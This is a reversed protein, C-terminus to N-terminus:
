LSIMLLHFSLSFSGMPNLTWRCVVEGVESGGQCWGVRECVVLWYEAKGSKRKRSTWTEKKGEEKRGVWDRERRRGKDRDRMRGCSCLKVHVSACCYNLRTELRCSTLDTPRSSHLFNNFHPIVRHQTCCHFFAIHPNRVKEQRKDYETGWIVNCIHRIQNDHMRIQPSGQYFCRKWKSQCLLETKM